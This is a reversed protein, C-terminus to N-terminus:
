PRLIVVIPKAVDHDAVVAHTCIALGILSPVGLMLAYGTSERTHNNSWTTVAVAMGYTSCLGPPLGILIFLVTVLVKGGASGSM